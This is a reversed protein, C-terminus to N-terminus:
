GGQFCVLLVADYMADDAYVNTELIGEKSGEFHVIAIRVLVWRPFGEVCGFLYSGLPQSHM